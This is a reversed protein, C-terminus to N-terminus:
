KQDKSHQIKAKLIEIVRAYRTHPDGSEDDNVSQVWRLTSMEYEDLDALFKKAAPTSDSTQRWMEFISIKPTETEKTFALAADPSLAGVACFLVGEKKTRCSYVVHCLAKKPMAELKALIKELSALENKSLRWDLMDSM